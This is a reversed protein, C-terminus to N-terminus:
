SKDPSGEKAANRAENLKAWEERRLSRQQEDAILQKSLLGSGGAQSLYAVEKDLATSHEDRHYEM